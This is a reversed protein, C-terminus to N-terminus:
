ASNVHHKTQTYPQRSPAPGVHQLQGLTPRLYERFKHGPDRCLHSSEDHPTHLLDSGPPCAGEVIGLPIPARYHAFVDDLRHNFLDAVGSVACPYLRCCAREGLTARM